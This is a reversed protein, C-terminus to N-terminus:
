KEPELEKEVYDSFGVMFIGNFINGSFSSNAAKLVQQNGYINLGIPRLDLHKIDCHGDGIKVVNLIVVSGTKITIDKLPENKSITLGTHLSNNEIILPTWSSKDVKTYLWVQPLIGDGILLPAFNDIGMVNGGGIIKNSCVDLIQLKKYNKPFGTSKEM